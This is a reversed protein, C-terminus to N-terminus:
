ILLEKITLMLSSSKRKTLKNNTKARPHMEDDFPGVPSIVPIATMSECCMFLFVTVFLSCIESQTFYQRPRLLSEEIREFVPHYIIDGSKQVLLQAAEPTLHV